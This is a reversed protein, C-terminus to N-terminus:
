ASRRRKEHHHPLPGRGCSEAFCLSPDVALLGDRVARELALADELDQLADAWAQPVGVPSAQEFAVCRARADEWARLAVARAEGGRGTRRLAAVAERWRSPDALLTRELTRVDVDAM